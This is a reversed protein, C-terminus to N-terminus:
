IYLMLILFIVHYKQNNLDKFFISSEMERKVKNKGERKMVTALVGSVINFLVSEIANLSKFLVSAVDLLPLTWVSACDLFPWIPLLNFEHFINFKLNLFKWGKEIWSLKFDL